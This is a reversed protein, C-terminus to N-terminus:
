FPRMNFKKYFYFAMKYNLRYICIDFCNFGADDRMEIDAKCEEAFFVGLKYNFKMACWM